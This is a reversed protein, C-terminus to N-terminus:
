APEIPVGRGGFRSSLLGLLFFFYLNLDSYLGSTLTLGTIWYAVVLSLFCAAAARQTATGARKLARWGMLGLWVNAIVYIAFAIWGLEAAIWILNSHPSALARSDMVQEVSEDEWNYKARFYDGYNALGVGFLPHEAAIAAAAEWTAVRSFANSPDALRGAFLSPALGAALAVMAILAAILWRGGFAKGEKLALAKGGGLELIVWCTLAAIAVTRFMPLLSAILAAALAYEYLLRSTKDFRLRLAEPAARLFLFFMLCIISYSSDAAFPGNVRREGARILESGKYAFLDSGTALEYAGTAFLLLALGIAALTLWRLRARGGLHHRALRFAFLPLCFSDFAIKGAYGLDHSKLLASALAAVSLAAWAIEFRTATALARTSANNIAGTTAGRKWRILLLGAILLFVARDFTLVSKDYPFRVFFSAVPSAAFWAVLITSVSVDASVVFGFALMVLAAAAAERFRGGACLAAAILAGSSAAIALFPQPGLRSQPNLISSQPDLTTPQITTRAPEQSM